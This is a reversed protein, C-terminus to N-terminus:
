SFLQSIEKACETWSFKKANEFGKKILDKRAEENTLCIYINEGIESINEPDVLIAGDGAVEPISSIKSSIVPVMVSQAELIPIGFGEYLTPFVFVTSKSLLEWKEEESVYGLQNIDKKFKSKEIEEEIKEYGFGPKGALFLKQTIGYKEKIYNFAKIIRVINKREELRGIFLLYGDKDTVQQDVKKDMNEEIISKEIGLQQNYGEYIVKIKDSSVGYLKIVDEKTNKSVCIIDSAWHCSKKIVNRMYFKQWASYAEPCFEYELGHIVVITKKPHIIPVTHAPVFLADVPNVLLELSLRLQTWLRPFWLKKIKWNSPIEFDVSQNKRIYLVVSEDKLFDRLNFIVRYAYEEIGTRKKIFARSGDIGIKM